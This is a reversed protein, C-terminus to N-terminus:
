AGPARYDLQMGSARDIEDPSLLVTTEITAGGAASVQMAASACTTADPFDVICYVDADGFAFHFSDLHGGASQVAKEAANRRANGGEKMVGQMGTTTYRVKWLFKSMTIEL